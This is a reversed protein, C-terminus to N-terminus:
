KVIVKAVNEGWKVIYYGPAVNVTPEADTLRGAAVLQGAITYISYAENGANSFIICGEAGRCTSVAVSVDDIGADEVENINFFKQWNSDEKYTKLSGNPVIVKVMKYQEDTFEGITPPTIQRSEIEDISWDKDLWYANPATAESFDLVVRKVKGNTLWSNSGFPYKLDIDGKVILCEIDANYFMGEPNHSHNSFITNGIDANHVTITKLPNGAFAPYNDHYEGKFFASLPLDVDTFNCRCFSGQNFMAYWMSSFDMKEPLSECNEFAAEGFVASEPLNIKELKVCGSFADKPFDLEVLSALKVEMLEECGDFAAHGFQMSPSQSLDITKLGTNCFAGGEIYEITGPLIISALGTCDYFASAAVRVPTYTIDNYTFYEVVKDGYYKEGYPSRVVAVENTYQKAAYYLGDHELIIPEYVGTSGRKNFRNWVESKEYNGSFERPVYLSVNEYQSETFRAGRPPIASGCSVNELNPYNVGNFTTELCFGFFSIRKLKTGKFPDCVPGDYSSVVRRGIFGNELASCGDFTTEPNAFILDDEPLKENQSVYLECGELYVDTLSSCGKFAYSDIYQVSAPIYINNLGTCGDFAYEDISKLGYSLVPNVNEIYDNVETRISKCGAFARAGITRCESAIEVDKLLDCGAFCETPIDCNVYIKKM